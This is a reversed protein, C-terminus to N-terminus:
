SEGPGRRVGPRRSLASPVRPVACRPSGPRDTPVPPLNMLDVAAGPRPTRPTRPARCHGVPERCALGALAQSARAAKGGPPPRAM